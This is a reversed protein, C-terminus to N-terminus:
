GENGRHQTAASHAHAGIIAISLWILAVTFLVPAAMHLPAREPLAMGVWALLSVIPAAIVGGVICVNALVLGLWHRFTESTLLGTAVTLSALTVQWIGVASARGLHATRRRLESMSPLTAQRWGQLFLKRDQFLMM